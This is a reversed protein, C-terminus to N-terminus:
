IAKDLRNGPERTALDKLSLLALLYGFAPHPPKQLHIRDLPLLATSVVQERDVLLRKQIAASNRNWPYLITTLKDTDCQSLRGLAALAHVVSIGQFAQPWVLLAHSKKDRLTQEFAGLLDNATPGLDYSHDGGQRRLSIRRVGGFNTPLSKARSQQVSAM